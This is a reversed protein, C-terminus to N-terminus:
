RRYRYVRGGNFLIDLLMFICIVGFFYVRERILSWRLQDTDEITTINTSNAELTWLISANNELFIGAKIRMGSRLKSLLSKDYSLINRTVGHKKIKLVIFQDEYEDSDDDIAEHVSSLRGEIVELSYEEPVSYLLNSWVFALIISVFILDFILRM